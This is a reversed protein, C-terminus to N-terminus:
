PPLYKPLTVRGTDGPRWCVPDKANEEAVLPQIEDFIRRAEPLNRNYRIACHFSMGLEELRMNNPCNIGSCRKDDLLDCCACTRWSDSKTGAERWEEQTHEEAALFRTWYDLKTSM